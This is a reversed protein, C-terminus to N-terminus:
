TAFDGYAIALINGALDTAGALWWSYSKGGTLASTPTFVMQQSTPMTVTGPVETAVSGIGASWQVLRFNPRSPTGPPTLITNQNMAESFNLTVTASTSVGAADDAPVSSSLTPPTVDATITTDGFTGLFSGDAGGAEDVIGRFKVKWGLFKDGAYVPDFDGVPIASQLTFDYGPTNASIFTQFKLPVGTIKQGAIEGFTIKSNAGSTVIHLGPFMNALNTMVTEMLVFDAEIVEGNKWGGVPTKGFKGVFAEVTTVKRTISVGKEDTHGINVSNVLCNVPGALVINAVSPSAM